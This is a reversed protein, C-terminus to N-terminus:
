QCVKGPILDDIEITGGAAVNKFQGDGRAAMDTLLQVAEPEQLNGYFISSLSVRGPAVAKLADIDSAAQSSAFDGVINYDSPYGDSIFVVVYQPDSAANLDADAEITRKVLSLAAKYPTGGEDKVSKFDVIAQSMEAATNSLRESVGDDILSRASSGSFTFFGWEFNTKAQYKNFFTEIAGGRFAKMPDTAPVCDMDGSRCNKVNSGSTDVVFVIKTHRQIAAVDECPQDITGGGDDGGPNGGPDGPLDPNGGKTASDETGSFEVKSCNQFGVMCVLSILVVLWQKKM